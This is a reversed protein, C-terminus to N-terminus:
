RFFYPSRELSKVTYDLLLRRLRLRERILQSCYWKALAPAPVVCLLNSNKRIQVICALKSDLINGTGSGCWCLSAGGVSIRFRKCYCARQENELSLPPLLGKTTSWQNSTCKTQHGYKQHCQFRDGRPSFKLRKWNCELRSRLNQNIAGIKRAM